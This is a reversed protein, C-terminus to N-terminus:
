VEHLEIALAKRKVRPGTCCVCFHKYAWKHKKMWFSFLWISGMKPHHALPHHIKETNPSDLKISLFSSSLLDLAGEGSVRQCMEASYVSARRRKMRLPFRLGLSRAIHTACTLSVSAWLAHSMRSVRDPGPYTLNIIIVGEVVIITIISYNETPAM